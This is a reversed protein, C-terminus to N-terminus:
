FLHGFKVSNTINYSVKLFLKLTLKFKLKLYWDDLHGITQSIDLNVDAEVHGVAQSRHFQDLMVLLSKRGHCFEDVNEFLEEQM